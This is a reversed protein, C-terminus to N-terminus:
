RFSAPLTRFGRLLNSMLVDPEGVEIHRVRRVVAALLSELELQGLHGGACRHVGHGFALHDAADRTVDYREPDEYRREDRNASGYLILVRAGAPIEVDDVRYPAAVYRTFARVPSECRLAEHVAAPILEPQARVKAYQEPHRGLLFLLSGTGLITTDLSPAIYDVLLGPVDEADLEGAEAAAFLRAAWGEPRLKEARVSAAYQIMELLKPAAAEARANMPGLVDFSAAAWELMRERGEEPLGVLRAVIGVPLRRAFDTIGDFSGRAVLEAVVDDALREIEGRVAALASPMMPGMLARRRRRHLAGDSVLTARAPQSNLFDNLAVGHGSVLADSARLAARVDEHRGLAWVGHAALWVAPGADRIERYPPYPDRIADDTFLDLALEPAIAM